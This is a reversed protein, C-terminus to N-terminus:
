SVTLASVSVMATDAVGSIDGGGRVCSSMGVMVAMLFRSLQVPDADARLEGQAVGCRIREEILTRIHERDPALRPESLMFCGSPTDADLLGKATVDLLSAIAEHVRERGLARRVQGEIGEVYRDSAARFLREKDGFAAYLSPASIGMAQTLDSISTGEYGDSWFKEMAM